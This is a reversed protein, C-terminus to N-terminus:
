RREARSVSSSSITPKAKALWDNKETFLPSVIRSCVETIPRRPMPMVMTIMVPPMSRDTPETSASAPTPVAIATLAPTGTPSAM